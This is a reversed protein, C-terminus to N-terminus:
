VPSKFEVSNPAIVCVPQLTGDLDGKNIGTSRRSQPVSVERTFVARSAWHKKEQNRVQFTVERHGTQSDCRRATVDLLLESNCESNWGQSCSAGRARQRSQCFTRIQSNIHHQLTSVPLSV